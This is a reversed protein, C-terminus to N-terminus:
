EQLSVDEKVEYRHPDKSAISKAVDHIVDHMRVFEKRAEEEVFYLSPPKERFYKQVDEVVDLLMSSSKLIKVLTVFKDRAIELSDMFGFLDLGMFYKLLDEMSIDGDGLLGCLLFFSKPEESELHNYSLELCSYM